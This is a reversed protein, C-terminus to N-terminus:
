GGFDDFYPKGEYDFYKISFYDEESKIVVTASDHGLKEEYASGLREKAGALFDDRKKRSVSVTIDGSDSECTLEIFKGGNVKKLTVVVVKAEKTNKSGGGKGRGYVPFSDKVKMEPDSERLEELIDSPHGKAKIKMYAKEYIVELTVEIFEVAQKEKDSM